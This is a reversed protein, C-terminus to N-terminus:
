KIMSFIIAEYWRSLRGNVSDRYSAVGYQRRPQQGVDYVELVDGSIAHFRYGTVSIIVDVQDDSAAKTRLLQVSHITKFMVIADWPKVDAAVPRNVCGYPRM